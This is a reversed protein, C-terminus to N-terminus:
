FILFIMLGVLIGRPFEMGSGTDSEGPLAEVALAGKNREPPKRSSTAGMESAEDQMEAPEEAGIWLLRVRRELTPASEPLKLWFFEPSSESSDKPCSVTSFIRDCDVVSM